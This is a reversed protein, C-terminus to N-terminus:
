TEVRPHKEAGFRQGAVARLKQIARVVASNPVGTRALALRAHDLALLPRDALERTLLHVNRDIAARVCVARGGEM